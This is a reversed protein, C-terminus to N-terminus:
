CAIMHHLFNYKYSDKLSANDNWNKNRSELVTNVLKERHAKYEVWSEKRVGAQTAPISFIDLCEPLVPESGEVKEASM